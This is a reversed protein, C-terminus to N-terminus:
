SEVGRRQFPETSPYRATGDTRAPGGNLQALEVLGAHLATVELDLEARLSSLAAGAPDSLGEAVSARLERIMDAIQDVALGAAALSNALAGADTESEMLRLQARLAAGEADIRRFLRPLEGRRGNGRVALEIAAQGSDLAEDLKLQLAYVQRRPGWSWQARNKLVTRNVSRSRRIRRYLARAVLFVTIASVVAVAALVALSILVGFLIDM